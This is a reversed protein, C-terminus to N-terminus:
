WTSESSISFYGLRLRGIGLDLDEEDPNKINKSRCLLDRFGECHIVRRFLQFLKRLKFIYVSVPLMELGARLVWIIPFLLAPTLDRFSGDGLDQCFETVNNKM